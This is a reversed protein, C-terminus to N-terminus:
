GPKTLQHCMRSSTIQHYQNRYGMKITQFNAKSTRIVWLIQATAIMEIKLILRKNIKIRSNCQNYCWKSRKLCKRILIPTKMTTITALLFLLLMKKTLCCCIKNSKSVIKIKGSVIQIIQMSITRQQLCSHHLLDRIFYTM